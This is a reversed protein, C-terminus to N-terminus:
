WLSTKNPLGITGSFGFAKLFGSRHTALWPLEDFFLVQKKKRSISEELVSILLHFAELWNRPREIETDSKAYRGLLFHFSAIQEERTGNQIGTFELAIRSGYVSRVLFTKGVRRRGFVAILEAENSALAKRLIEQEAHRGILLSNM